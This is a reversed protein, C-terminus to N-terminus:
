MLSKDVCGCVYCVGNESEITTNSEKFRDGERGRENSGEGMRDRGRHISILCENLWIQETHQPLTAKLQSRLELAM